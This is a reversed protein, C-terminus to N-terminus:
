GLFLHILRPVLRTGFLVALVILGVPILIKLNASMGPILERVQHIGELPLAALSSAQQFFVTGDSNLIDNTSRVIAYDSINPLYTYSSDYATWESNILKYWHFSCDGVVYIQRFHLANNDDLQARVKDYYQSVDAYYYTCDTNNFFLVGCNGNMSQPPDPVTAFAFSSTIIFIVSLICLLRKFM